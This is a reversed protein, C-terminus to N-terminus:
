ETLTLSPTKESTRIGRQGRSVEESFYHLFHQRLLSGQRTRQGGLSRSSDSRCLSPSSGTRTSLSVRCGSCTEEKGIAGRDRGEVRAAVNGDGSGEQHYLQLIIYLISILTAAQCQHPLWVWPLSYLHLGLSVSGLLFGLLRCRPRVPRGDYAQRVAAIPTEMSSIDKRLSRTRNTAPTSVLPTRIVLLLDRSTPPFNEQVLRRPRRSRALHATVCLARAETACLHLDPTYGEASWTGALLLCVEGDALKRVLLLRPAKAALSEGLRQLPHTPLARITCFADGCLHM